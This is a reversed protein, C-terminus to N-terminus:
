LLAFTFLGGHGLYRVLAYEPLFAYDVHDEFRVGSEPGLLFLRYDSTLTWFM